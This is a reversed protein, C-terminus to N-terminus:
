DISKIKMLYNQYKEKAISALIATLLNIGLLTLITIYSEIRLWYWGIVTWDFEGFIFWYWVWSIVVMFPIIWISNRIGYEYFPERYVMLFIIGALIIVALFSQPSFMVQHLFLISMGINKQYVNALYGFFVFYVLILALIFNTQRGIEIKVKM